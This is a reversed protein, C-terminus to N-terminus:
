EIDEMLIDNPEVENGTKISYNTNKITILKVEGERNQLGPIALFCSDNVKYVEYIQVSAQHANIIPYQEKIESSRCGIFALCVSLCCFMRLIGKMYNM